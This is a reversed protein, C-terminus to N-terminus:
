RVWFEEEDDMDSPPSLPREPVAKTKSTSVPINGLVEAVTSSDGDSTSGVCIDSGSSSSQTDTRM